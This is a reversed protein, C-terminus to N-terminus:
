QQPTNLLNQAQVCRQVRQQCAEVRSLLIFALVYMEKSSSLFLEINTQTQTEFMRTRPSLDPNKNGRERNM